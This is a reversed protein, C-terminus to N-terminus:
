QVQVIHLPDNESGSPLDLHVSVGDNISFSRPFDPPEIDDVSSKLAYTAHLALEDQELVASSLEQLAKFELLSFLHNAIKRHIRELEKERHALVGHVGYKQLEKRVREIEEIVQEYWLNFENILERVTKGTMSPLAVPRYSDYINDVALKTQANCQYPYSRREVASELRLKVYANFDKMFNETLTRTTSLM